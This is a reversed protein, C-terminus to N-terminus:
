MIVNVFLMINKVVEDDIKWLIIYNDLMKFMNILMYFFENVFLKIDISLGFSVYIMGSKLKNM